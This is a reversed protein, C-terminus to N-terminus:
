ELPNAFLRIDLYVPGSLSPFESLQPSCLDNCREPLIDWKSLRGMKLRVDKKLCFTLEIAVFAMIKQVM